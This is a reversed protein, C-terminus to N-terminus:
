IFFHFNTASLLNLNCIKHVLLLRVFVASQQRWWSRLLFDSLCNSFGFDLLLALSAIPMLLHFSPSVFVCLMLLRVFSIFHQCIISLSLISLTTLVCLCSAQYPCHAPLRTAAALLHKSSLSKRLTNLSCVFMRVYM